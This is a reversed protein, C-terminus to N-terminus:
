SELPFKVPLGTEKSRYIANILEVTKRGDEVTVLPQTDNIIAQIFDNMQELHFHTTADISNFYETDEQRYQELLDEEDAVTWLDNLPPENIKSMGAVFMQGGDTQVGIAAGNSGFVHVKGYLAPNISNSVVINGFAGNKFKVMAVATDEVEIYPHNFNAWSGYVEDIDGMYWLLLDLQHPAQNVLVGGGEAKWSGRWPDSEYYALDRWGYMNVTGFIPQGIKGSDIAKKIRMCPRFFRRQVITTMKVGYKDKAEIIDDCDKLSTALPKEIAVHVGNKAALVAYESHNPHPTCIAVVDLNEKDFMENVDTYGNIGYKKSFADVTTQRRSFCAVLETEKLKNFALAHFHGVKGSGIIACRLKQM